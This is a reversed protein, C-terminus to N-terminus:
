TRFSLLPTRFSLKSFETASFWFTKGSFEPAVFKTFEFESFEASDFESFEASGFESFEFEAFESPSFEFEFKTFFEDAFEAGRKETSKEFEFEPPPVRAAVIRFIEASFEVASFLFTM